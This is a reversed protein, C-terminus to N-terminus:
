FGVFYVNIEGYVFSINYNATVDVGNRTVQYTWPESSSGNTAPSDESTAEYFGWEKVPPILTIIDGNNCRFQNSGLAKVSTSSSAVKAEGPSLKAPENEFCYGILDPTSFTMSCQTITLNLENKLTIVYETDAVENGKKDTLYFYSSLMKASYTGVNIDSPMLASEEVYWVKFDDKEGTPAISYSFFNGKLEFAKGDYAKSQNRFYIGVELKEKVTFSGTIAVNFNATKDEGAENLIKYSSLYDAFQFTGATSPGDKFVYDTVRFGDPLGRFQINSSFNKFEANLDKPTGNARTSFVYGFPFRISADKKVITFSANESAPLNYYASRDEGNSSTVSSVTITYSYTGAETQKECDSTAMAIDSGEASASANGQHEEADYTWEGGDKQISVDAKEFTYSVALAIDYNATRDSGNCTIKVEFDDADADGIISGSGDDIPTITLHDGSALGSDAGSNTVQYESGSLSTASFLYGEYVRSGSITINLPRKAISLTGSVCSVDYLATEDRGQGDKISLVEPTYTYSEGAYRLQHESPNSKLSITEDKLTCNGPVGTVKPKLYHDQGDYVITEDSYSVTLPIRNFVDSGDLVISYNSTVEVNSSDYIHPVYKVKGEETREYTFSLKQSPAM